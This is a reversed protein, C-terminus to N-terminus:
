QFTYLISRPHALGCPTVLGRTIAGQGDYIPWMLPLSRGGGGRLGFGKEVRDHPFDFSQHVSGDGVTTVEFRAISLNDGDAVNRKHIQVAIVNGRYTVVEQLQKITTPLRDGCLRAEISNKGLMTQRTLFYKGLVEAPKHTLDTTRNREEVTHTEVSDKV